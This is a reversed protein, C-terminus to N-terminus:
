GCSRHVGDISMSGPHNTTLVIAIAHLIHDTTDQCDDIDSVMSPLECNGVVDLIYSVHEPEGTGKRYAHSEAIDIRRTDLTFNKVILPFEHAKAWPFSFSFYFSPITDSM